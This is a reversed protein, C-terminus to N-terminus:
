TKYKFPRFRANTQSVHNHKNEPANEM